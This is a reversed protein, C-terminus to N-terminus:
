KDKKRKEKSNRKLEDRKEKKKVKEKIDGNEAWKKVEEGKWKKEKQEEGEIREEQHFSVGFILNWLIANWKACGVFSM